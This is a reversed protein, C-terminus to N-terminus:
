AVKVNMDACCLNTVLGLVEHPAHATCYTIEATVRDNNVFCPVLSGSCAMKALKSDGECNFSVDKFVQLHHLLKM